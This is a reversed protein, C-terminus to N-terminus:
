IAAIAGQARKANANRAARRSRQMERGHGCLEHWTAQHMRWTPPMAPAAAGGTKALMIASSPLLAALARGGLGDGHLDDLVQAVM